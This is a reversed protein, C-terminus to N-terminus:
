RQRNTGVEVLHEQRVVPCYDSAAEFNWREGTEAREARTHFSAHVRRVRLYQPPTDGFPNSEM